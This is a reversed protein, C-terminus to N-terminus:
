LLERPIGHLWRTLSPLHMGQQVDGAIYIIRRLHMISATVLIVHEHDRADLKRPDVRELFM